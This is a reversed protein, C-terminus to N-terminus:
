APMNRRAWTAFDTFGGPVLARAAADYDGTEELGFAHMGLVAFPDDHRGAVIAEIIGSPVAPDM